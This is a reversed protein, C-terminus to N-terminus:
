KKEPSKLCIWSVFPSNFWLHTFGFPRGKADRPQGLVQIIREAVDSAIPERTPSPFLVKPHGINLTWTMKFLIFDFMMLCDLLIIQLDDHIMIKFPMGFCRGHEFKTDTVSAPLAAAACGLGAAVTAIPRIAVAGIKTCSPITVYSAMLNCPLQRVPDSITVNKPVWSPKSLFVFLNDSTEQCLICRKQCLHAIISSWGISMDPSPINTSGLYAISFWQSNSRLSTKLPRNSDTISCGLLM